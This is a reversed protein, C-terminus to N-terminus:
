ELFGVSLWYRALADFDQTRIEVRGHCIAPVGDRLIVIIHIVNTLIACPLTANRVATQWKGSKMASVSFRHAKSFIQSAMPFTGWATSIRSCAHASKVEPILLLAVVGALEVFSAGRIMVNLKM